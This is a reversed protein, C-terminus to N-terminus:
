QKWTQTSEDWAYINGDRPYLAPPEWSWTTTNLQWSPFPQQAYFVDSEASYIGGIRAFNGRLARGEPHTNGATRISTQRWDSADPLSDIFAQEAVIIDIVTGNQIKAFHSM